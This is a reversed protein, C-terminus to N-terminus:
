KEVIGDGERIAANHEEFVKPIAKENYEDIIGTEQCYDLFMEFMKIGVQVEDECIEYENECPNLASLCDRLNHNTNFFRCYSMNAMICGGLLIVTKNGPLERPKATKIFKIKTM